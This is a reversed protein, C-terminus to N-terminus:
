KCEGELRWLEKAAKCGDRWAKYDVYGQLPKCDEWTGDKVPCGYYHVILPSVAKVFRNMRWDLDTPGATVSVLTVLLCLRMLAM